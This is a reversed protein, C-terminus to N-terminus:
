SIDELEFELEPEEIGDFEEPLPAPLDEPDFTLRKEDLDYVWHTDEIIGAISGDYEMNIEDLKSVDDESNLFRLLKVTTARVFEEKSRYVPRTTVNHKALKGCDQVTLNEYKKNESFSDHLCQLVNNLAEYLYKKDQVSVKGHGPHPLLKRIESVAKICRVLLAPDKTKTIIDEFLKMNMPLNINELYNHQADRNLRRANDRKGFDGLVTKVIKVGDIDNVDPNKDSVASLSTEPGHGPLYIKQFLPDLHPTPGKTKVLGEARRAVMDKYLENALSQHPKLPPKHNKIMGPQYRQLPVPYLGPKPPPLPIRPKPAPADPKPPRAIEIPQPLLYGVPTSRPDPLLYQRRSKGSSDSKKGVNNSIVFCQPKKDSNGESFRTKSVVETDRNADPFRSSKTPEQLNMNHTQLSAPPVDFRSPKPPASAPSVTQHRIIQRADTVFGLYSSGPVNRPKKLVPGPLPSCPVSNPYKASGYFINQEGPNALLPTPRNSNYSPPYSIIATNNALGQPSNNIKSSYNLLVRKQAM